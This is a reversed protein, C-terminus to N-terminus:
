LRLQMENTSKFGAQDYVLRGAETAHLFLLHLKRERAEQLARETLRKALGQRRYAPETYVNLIYGRAPEIHLPHPPWDVTMMGLGAAIDAGRILLWGYYRGDALRPQLWERFAASKTQLDADDARGADVFMLHRHRVITDLDDVTIDRLRYAIFSTSDNM